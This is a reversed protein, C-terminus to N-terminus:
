PVIVRLMKPRVTFSVPLHGVNEGELHFPLPAGSYLSVTEARFHQVGGASYLQNTLLGWGGRLLAGWNVKPFVSVELIGDRLDAAPFIPYRGGYFRGNGILVLEGAFTQKGDTAAIQPKAEGLAKFGAVWYAFQGFRKKQEWNILEIARSDVGAGAMQAFYRRRKQEQVAFEAVPLDISIENGRLLTAWAESFRLPLNLERAFVNVTGLPLVALRVKALAEPEAAIGNLVENVTGDGGAAAIVEYGEKVAETALRIGDGSACTPKLTCQASLLGLQERFRKAKEGRAAPNFIVCIRM